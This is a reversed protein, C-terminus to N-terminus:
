EMKDRASGTAVALTTVLTMTAALPRFAGYDAEDVSLYADALPRLPSLGADSLAVVAAGAGRAAEALEVTPASYPDFAIAILADASDIAARADLWGAKDHLIAPLGMKEFVYALYSAPPQSRRLGIVHILRARALREVAIDLQRPDLGGLLNELSHRGTEAFEALLSAPSAAGRERLRRLREAYDPRAAAYAGRFVAQMQSFGDYGMAKAFRVMASPAVGAGQALEAVTSVAIRDEHAALHSACQRLRRPLSPTRAELARRFAEPSSPAGMQAPLRGEM